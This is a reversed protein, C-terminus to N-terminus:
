RTARGDHSSSCVSMAITRLVRAQAKLSMPLLGLEESFDRVRPTTRSITLMFVGRSRLRSWLWRTPWAVAKM